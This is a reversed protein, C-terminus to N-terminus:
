QHNQGNFNNEAKLISDSNHATRAKKTDEFSRLSANFESFTQQKERQTVVLVFPKYSQPLGKLVMAMLLSDTEIEGM